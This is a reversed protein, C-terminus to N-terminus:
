HRRRLGGGGGQANNNYLRETVTITLGTGGGDNDVSSSLPVEESRHIIINYRYPAPYLSAIRSPPPSTSAPFLPATTLGIGRADSNSDIGLFSTRQQYTYDLVVPTILSTPILSPNTPPSPSPPPPPDTSTPLPPPQPPNIRGLSYRKHPYILHALLTKSGLALIAGGGWELCVGAERGTWDTCHQGRRMIGRQVSHNGGGGGEKIGVLNIM